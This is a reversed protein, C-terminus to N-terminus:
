KMNQTANLWLYADLIDNCLPRIRSTVKKIEEVDQYKSVVAMKNHGVFQDVLGAAGQQWYAHAIHNREGNMSHVKNLLTIIHEANKKGYRAPCLTKMATCITSLPQTTSAEFADQAAGIALFYVTKVIYELQSFEVLFEGIASYHPPSVPKGMLAAAIQERTATM